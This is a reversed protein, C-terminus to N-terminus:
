LFSGGVLAVGFAIVGSAVAARVRADAPDQMSNGYSGLFALGGFISVAGAVRMAEPMV